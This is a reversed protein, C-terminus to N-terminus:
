LWSESVEMRRFNTRYLAENDAYLSDVIAVPAANQKEPMPLLRFQTAQFSHVLWAIKIDLLYQVV